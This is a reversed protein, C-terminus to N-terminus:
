IVMREVTIVLEMVGVVVEVVVVLSIRLLLVIEPYIGRREVITVPVRGNVERNPMRAIEQSIVQNTVNTVSGQIKLQRQSNQVIVLWTVLSEVNIATEQEFNYVLISNNKCINKIAM